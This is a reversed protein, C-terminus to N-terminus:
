SAAAKSAQREMYDRLDSEAIRWPSIRSDGVKSAKLDGSKILKSLTDRSVRLLARAEAATLYM